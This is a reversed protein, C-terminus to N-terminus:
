KEHMYIILTTTRQRKNLTITISKGGLSNYLTSTTGKKDIMGCSRQEFNNYELRVLKFEFYGLPSAAPPRRQLSTSGLQTKSFVESSPHLVCQLLIHLRDHELGWSFKEHIRRRFQHKRPSM